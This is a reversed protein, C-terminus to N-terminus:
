RGSTLLDQVRERVTVALEEPTVVGARRRTTIPEGIVIRRHRGPEFGSIAVPLVPAGQDLAVGLADVPAPGAHFPHMFERHLAVTVLEGSRLLVRLDDLGSPVGGLRRLVPGVVAVDPVGSFRVPRSSARGLADSVLLPESLGLRCNHVILASGIEPIRQEGIVDASWRMRTVLSTVSAIDADFGWEDIPFRGTIRRWLLAPVGTDSNDPDLHAIEPEVVTM